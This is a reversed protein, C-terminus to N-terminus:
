KFTTQIASCEPWSSEREAEAARGAAALAASTCDTDAADTMEGTTEAAAAAAVVLISADSCFPARAEPAIAAVDTMVTIGAAAVIAVVAVAFAPGSAPPPPLSGAPPIEVIPRPEKKSGAASRM